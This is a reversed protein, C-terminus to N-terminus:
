RPQVVFISKTEPGTNCGSIPVDPWSFWFQVEPNPMQSRFFWGGSVVNSIKASPMMARKTSRMCQQVEHAEM